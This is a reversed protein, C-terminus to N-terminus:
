IPLKNKMNMYKNYKRDIGDLMPIVMYNVADIITDIIDDHEHTNNDTFEDFEKIIAPYNVHRKSVNLYGRRIFDVVLSLRYLKDRNRPIGKVNYGKNRLVQILSIGSAKDEIYVTTLPPIHEINSHKNSFYDIFSTFKKVLSHFELKDRLMSILYIKGQKDQTFLSFVTFDNLNGTKNATDAFAYTRILETNKFDEDDPNFLKIWNSQLITSYGQKIPQQQLQSYFYSPNIERERILDKESLRKEWISGNDLKHPILTGKTNLNDTEVLAPIILHYFEKGYKELLHNTFDLPHIRQMIVIIPIDEKALRSKFTTEYRNNIFERKTSYLADDPKLPDDIILAGSFGKININGARFGTISSGSSVARLAGGSTTRWMGKSTTDKKLEVDSFLMKYNPTQVFDRIISSNLLVLTNDYSINLFRSKSNIAFGRAVFAIVGRATKGMGVPINIILRKIDGEFVRDITENFIKDFRTELYSGEIENFM